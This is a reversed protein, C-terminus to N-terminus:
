LSPTPVVSMQGGVIKYFHEAINGYSSSTISTVVANKLSFVMKESESMLTLESAKTQLESAHRLADEEALEATPHKKRVRFELHTVLNGRNVAKSVDGGVTTLLQVSRQGSVKLELPDEGYAVGRALEWTGLTIKM